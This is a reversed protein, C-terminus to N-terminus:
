ACYAFFLTGFEDDSAYLGLLYLRAWLNSVSVNCSSIKSSFAMLFMTMYWQLTESRCAHSAIGTFSYLRMHTSAPKDLPVIQSELKASLNVLRDVNMAGSQELYSVDGRHQRSHLRVCGVELTYVYTGSCDHLSSGPTTM